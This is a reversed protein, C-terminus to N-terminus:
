YVQPLDDFLYEQSLRKLYRYEGKIHAKGAASIAVNLVFLIQQEHISVEIRAPHYFEGHKVLFIAIHEIDGPRIKGKLRQQLAEVIIEIGRIEFFQQAAQFYDGITVVHQEDKDPASPNFNRTLALPKYWIPLDKSVPNERSSLYYSFQPTPM